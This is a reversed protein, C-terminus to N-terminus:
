PLSAIFAEAEEPMARAPHPHLEGVCNAASNDEREDWDVLVVRIDDDAYVDQVVGGSVEIVVTKM